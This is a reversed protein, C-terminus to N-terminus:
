VAKKFGNEKKRKWIYGANLEIILPLLIVCIVYPTFSNILITVHSVLGKLSKQAYLLLITGLADQKFGGEKMAFLVRGLTDIGLVTLEQAWCDVFGQHYENRLALYFQDQNCAIYGIANICRRVLKVREAIPGLSESCRLVTIANPLSTLAVRKIYDEAVSVLNNPSYEDTMELEESVCRLVAINEITIPLDKGYCFNVVLQFAKSADPVELSLRLSTVTKDESFM